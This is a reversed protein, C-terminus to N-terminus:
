CDNKRCRETGSRPQVPDDLIATDCGRGLATAGVSTSIMHGGRNNTFHEIRNRSRSLEFQDGWSKRFWRSRLLHRRKMSHETSLDLTYSATMFQHGPETIWTWVPFIVTVLTSKLTRPPVNIILRTVKRQKVLMLYECLYDLHWSWNLERGPMLISWAAKAFGVLDNAMEKSSFPLVARMFEPVSFEDGVVRTKRM